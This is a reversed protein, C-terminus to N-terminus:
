AHAPFMRHVIDERKQAEGLPLLKFEFGPFDAHNPFMRHVIDDRQQAEGLPLLKYEFAPFDASFHPIPVWDLEVRHGAGLRRVPVPAASAKRAFSFLKSKPKPPPSRLTRRQAQTTPATFSLM